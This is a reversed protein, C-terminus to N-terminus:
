SNLSTRVLSDDVRTNRLDILGERPHKVDVAHIARM